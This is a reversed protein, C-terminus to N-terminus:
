LKGCGEAYAIGIGFLGINVAVFIFDTNGIGLGVAGALLAVVGTVMTREKM